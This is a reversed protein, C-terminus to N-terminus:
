CSTQLIPEQEAFAEMLTVTMPTFLASSRHFELWAFVPRQHEPGGVEGFHDEWVEFVLARVVIARAQGDGRSAGPRSALNRGALSAGGSEGGMRRRSVHVVQGGSGGSPRRAMGGGGRMDGAVSPM